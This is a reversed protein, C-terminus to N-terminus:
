RQIVLREVIQRDGATVSVMYLGNALEGNLALATNVFGDQVAITRAAVRKGFADFIDVSVTQVGEAVASLSLMVHDGQNPNPYMRLTGATASGSDVDQEALASSCTTTLLCVDGWLAGGHCWTAGGDFSARVEVEYTKSCALGNTNVWYQGAASTKVLEFGEAPIRFRFQYRNANVWNCNANMRRVPRAHVLSAQGTGLPRLQGCSLFANDPIDMLKTRPCQALTNDAMFRCAAGWPLYNGAIRGRVKVNYLVGEQLQNGSWGNILFHCARTPGAPMGNSTAHSQFRKFSYGGNPDFWWMQYGSTSANAGGYEASVAANGNAVVYEGGCPSTKWDLRDCSTFIMRDTGLPLCFGEGNAIQSTYGATFGGNGFADRRNDIIRKNDADRLAYGGGAIGDGGDDLVALYYCGDPLCTSMNFGPSPPLLGGGSQVLTNTGQQRLEWTIDSLGDSQFEVNMANTCPVPVCACGAVQGLTYGADPNADCIDGNQLGALLPCPDVCDALADGDTDSDPVGCGCIGPATKAPDNPCGDVCDAALDGDTDTDPVGCGCIGPATKAPDSPCGDVCDATLDGDTDTDPNGCGCQGPATKAPDSPCGDVADCTLDGDTDQFTGACACGPSWTDNITCADGDNCPTGPMASGGLVGQCDIPLFNLRVFRLAGLDLSAADCVKLIWTGNPNGTNFGTLPQEPAYNGTVNNSAPISSLAAGGAVLRFLNAPCGTTSGFNDNSGGRANVLQVEQGGPSVLSIRLDSRYTHTIILEVSSLGVNTGLANPQGSITIGANLYTSSGCGNDAIALNNGCAGNGIPTPANTTTFLIGASNTSYDGGGCDRRVFYRYQTNPALGTILAPSVSASIVTGNLGPTPGAGPATFTAAPGYEVLYNGPPGSFNAGAQSNTIGTAAAATPSPCTLLQWELTYTGTGSGYGDQIWWVRQTSGTTNTWEVWAVEGGDDDVCAIVTSGPCAGGYRVYHQSDYNNAQQRIRLQNGDPVDIFYIADAATNGSATGCAFSFDATRGVTTGPLPSTEAALNLANVCNEASPCGPANTFSGFNRNCLADTEHLLWVNVADGMAFPGITQVDYDLLGPIDTPPGGNVTYRLTTTSADGTFLVEADITFSYANCDTNVTIVADPDVCGATCEAEFVWPSQQGSACSNSGDSDIELFLEDGASTGSVGFLDTFSGTLQAIPPANNDSGSYARIVDNPDMTGSVFSLTITEFPNSAIFHFTRTDGNRYCHSLTQSTGCAIPIPCNSYLTAEAAGCNSIGNNLSCAVESGVAFPGITTIGLPLSNLAFPTGDVTYVLHATTGAGYGTVNVQVSFQNSGCDDVPTFTATPPTCLNVRVYRVAGADQGVADCVRLTWTGTPDQGNHFGSLSQSPAWTGVNTSSGAVGSLPAGGDQFTFLGGPCAAANGFQTGSGGAAATLLGVETNDPARLFMRLDSGWTHSVIVDVSRVFVDTGLATGTSSLCFPVSTYNGTGCGNDPIPHAAAGHCTSGQDTFNFSGLGLNCLSNGNHVVTVTRPSGFPIGSVTYTGPGVNSHVNTGTPSQITVSPADGIGTVNVQIGYTGTACDTVVSATASPATCNVPTWTYTLGSSWSKAPSASTFRMASTNATGALSTAWNESGTGVLRNNVDTAFANSPGRLGVQPQQATSNAPGSAFPGYVTRIEGTATNLRVQFSFSESLGFFSYRRLGRWQVVVENGVTQWRVDRTGSSANVLDAGFASICRQYTATSSLPTYNNGAPASGFTIFGNTSVYLQTYATGNFTFAPITQAASVNDDFTTAWLQTGGTIATFTGPSQSFAYMSAVQARALAPPVLLAMLLLLRLFAAPWTPNAHHM